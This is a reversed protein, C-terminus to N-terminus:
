KRHSVSIIKKGADVFLLNPVTTEDADEPLIAHRLSVASVGGRLGSEVMLHMEPDTMLEIKDTKTLLMVNWALHPSSLFQSVDLRFDRYAKDRYNMMVEALLYVDLRCYLMAYDAMSTCAATEYVKLGHTYDADSINQELLRNYFQDHSPYGVSQLQTLGKVFDYPFVGKSTLLAKHQPIKATLSGHTFHSELIKFPHNDTKLDQVLQGLSSSLFHLSDLFTFPGIKLMRFKESNLALGSIKFQEVLEPCKFAALLFNGDYNSLNHIFIPISRQYTRHLNCTAHAAGLYAGDQISSHSHDLVKQRGPEESFPKECLWCKTAAYFETSQEKTLLPLEEERDNLFPILVEQVKQLHKYFQTMLLEPTEAAHKLECLLEGRDNFFTMVYMVPQQDCLVKTYSQDDALEGPNISIRSNVGNGSTQQKELNVAEFDAFGIIPNLFRRSGPQFELLPPSGDDECPPMLVTQPKNEHCIRKHTEYNDATVSQMCNHCVLSEARLQLLKELNSIYIYHMDQNKPNGVLLINITKEAKCTRGSSYVPFYIISKGRASKAKQQGGDNKGKMYVNISFNLSEKNLKELKKIQSIPTPTSVNGLTMLQKVVTDTMDYRLSGKTFRKGEENEKLPPLYAQAIAAFLCGNEISSEVDILWRRERATLSSVFLDDSAGGAYDQRNIHLSISSIYILSYGSGLLQLTDVREDIDLFLNSLINHILHRSGRLCTQNRSTMPINVSNSIGGEEDYTVYQGTVVLRVNVSNFRNLFGHIINHLEATESRQLSENDPIEHREFSRSVVQFNGRFATATERYYRFHSENTHRRREDESVFRRHCYM